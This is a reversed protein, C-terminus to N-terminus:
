PRIYAYGDHEKMIIEGVGSPVYGINQLMDQHTLKMHRMTNQCAEVHIGKQVADAIRSSVESDSKLMNIGPGYAVIEIDIGNPGFEKQANFANNLALNWKASDNDDVQFIVKQHAQQMPSAAAEAAHSSQPLAAVFPTAAILLARTFHLTKM